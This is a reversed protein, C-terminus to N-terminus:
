QLASDFAVEVRVFRYIKVRMGTAKAADRAMEIYTDLRDPLATMLPVLPSRPDGKKTGVLFGNRGQEDETMGVYLTGIVIDNKKDDAEM